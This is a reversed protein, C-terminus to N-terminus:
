LRSLICWKRAVSIASTNWAMKNWRKIKKIQIIMAGVLRGQLSFRMGVSLVNSHQIVAVHFWQPM